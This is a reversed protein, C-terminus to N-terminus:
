RGYKRRVEAVWDELDVQTRVRAQWAQAGMRWAERNLMDLLDAQNDELWLLWKPALWRPRLLALFCAVIFSSGGYYVFINRRTEVDPFFAISAWVLFTIGLPIGLYAAALPVIPTSKILWWAKYKGIRISIGAWLLGISISLLIVFYQLRDETIM